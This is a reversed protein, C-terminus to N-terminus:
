MWSTPGTGAGNTNNASQVAHATLMVTGTEGQYTNGADLPMSYSVDFTDTWKDAVPAKGVVQDNGVGFTQSNATDKVTVVLPTAGGFINGSESVDLGIWANLNGVYTVTYAEANNVSDGPAIPGINFVQAEEPGNLVVTGAAFTDTQSNASSSFLAFSAGAVLMGTIGLTGLFLAARKGIFNM